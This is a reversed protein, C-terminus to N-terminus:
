SLESPPVAPLSRTFDRLFEADGGVVPDPRRKHLTRHIGGEVPVRADSLCAVDPTM